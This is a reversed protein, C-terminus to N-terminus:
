QCAPQGWRFTRGNMGASLIAQCQAQWNGGAGNANVSVMWTGTKLNGVMQGYPCRATYLGSSADHLWTPAPDATVTNTFPTSVGTTGTLTVPTVTWTLTAQCFGPPATTTQFPGLDHTASLFLQASSPPPPSNSPGGGGVTVNTSVPNYTITITQSMAHFNTATATLIVPASMTVVMPQNGSGGAGNTGLLSLLDPVQGNADPVSATSVQYLTQGSQKVTVSFQQVGGPNKASGSMQVKAGETVAVSSTMGVNARGPEIDGSYGSPQQVVFANMTITPATDQGAPPISVNHSCAVTLLLFIRVGLRRM